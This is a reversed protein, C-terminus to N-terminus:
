EPQRIRGNLRPIKVRPMAECDPSSWCGWDFGQYMTYLLLELFNGWTLVAM